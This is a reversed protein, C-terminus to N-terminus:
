EAPALLGMGHGAATSSVCCDSLIPTRCRLDCSNTPCTRSVCRAAAVARDGDQRRHIRRSPRRPTRGRHHMARTVAVRTPFGNVVIRGTMDEAADILAALPAPDEDAVHVTAPLSWRLRKVIEPWSQQSSAVLVLVPGFQERQLEPRAFFTEVDTTLLGPGRRTGDGPACSAM